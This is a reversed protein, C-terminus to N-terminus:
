EKKGVLGIRELLSRMYELAPFRRRGHRGFTQSIRDLIVALIVVALGGEFGTGIELRQIGVLVPNGLGGAGIMAAIVVMSLALMITQNVGAMISPLALPLQVNWLLQARTCGFAIGAEIKEQDVHRIGINTLRVAPPMAFILTAVVGPVKGLGFFMAAPILYVFPPMTQMFDLVPRVMMQTRDSRAMLIGLPMGLMLAILSATLVLALTSATEIWIGMAVILLLSLLAAIAFRIGIRWAGLLVIFGILAWPPLGILTGEITNAVVGIGESIGDFVGPINELLWDVGAEVYKGIDIEFKM